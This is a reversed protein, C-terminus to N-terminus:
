AQELDRIHSIINYKTLLEFFCDGWGTGTLYENFTSSISPISRLGKQYWDIPALVGVGYQVTWANDLKQDETDGPWLHGFNVCSSNGCLHRCSPDPMYCDNFIMFSIRYAPINSWPGFGITQRPKDGFNWCGNEDSTCRTLIRAASSFIYDNDVELSNETWEEWAVPLIKKITLM